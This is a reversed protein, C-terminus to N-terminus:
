GSRQASVRIRKVDHATNFAVWNGEWSGFLAQRAALVKPDSMTLNGPPEELV